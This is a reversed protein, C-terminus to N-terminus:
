ASASIAVVMTVETIKIKAEKMKKYMDIAVTAYGNQAYFALMAACASASQSAPIGDFVRRAESVNGLKGYGAIMAVWTVENKDNMVDYLEKTAKMDERNAYGAVVTTWTFSNREGMNDFLWQADVMMGVKAYACIMTTWAIVDRDDMRDFVGHADSVCGVKGYMGLLAIQVIRNRIFGSQVVQYIKSM